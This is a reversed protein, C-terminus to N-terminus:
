PGPYNSCTIVVPGLLTGARIMHYKMVQGRGRAWAERHGRVGTLLVANMRNGFLRWLGIASEERGLCGINCTVRSYIGRETGVAM